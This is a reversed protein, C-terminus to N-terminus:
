GERILPPMVEGDGTCRLLLDPCVPVPAIVEQCERLVRDIEVLVEQRFVRDYEKVTAPDM